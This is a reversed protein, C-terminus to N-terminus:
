LWESDHIALRLVYKVVSKIFAINVLLIHIFKVHILIIQFNM